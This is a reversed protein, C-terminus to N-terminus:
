QTAPELSEDETPSQWDDGFLEVPHPTRVTDKGCVLNHAPCYQECGWCVRDPHAPHTPLTLHRSMTVWAAFGIGTHLLALGAITSIENGIVACFRRTARM